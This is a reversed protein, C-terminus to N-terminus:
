ERAKVALIVGPHVLRDITPTTKLQKAAYNFRLARSIKGKRRKM